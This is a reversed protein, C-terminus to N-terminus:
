SIGIDLTKWAARSERAKKSLSTYPPYRSNIGHIKQFGQKGKGERGDVDAGEDDGQDNVGDDASHGARQDTQQGVQPDDAPDEFNQSAEYVKVNEYADKQRNEAKGADHLLFFVPM